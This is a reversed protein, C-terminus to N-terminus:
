RHAVHDAQKRTLYGKEVCVEKLDPLNKGVATFCWDRFTRENHIKVARASEQYEGSLFYGVAAIMAVCAAAVMRKSVVNM